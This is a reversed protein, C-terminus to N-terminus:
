KSCLLSVILATHKQWRPIKRGKEWSAWLTPPGLFIKFDVKECDGDFFQRTAATPFFVAIRRRTLPIFLRLTLRVFAELRRRRPPYSRCVVTDCCYRAAASHNYRLSVRPPRRGRLWDILLRVTIPKYQKDSHWDCSPALQQSSISSLVGEVVFGERM